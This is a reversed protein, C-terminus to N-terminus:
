DTLWKGPVKAADPKTKLGGLPIRDSLIEALKTRALRKMSAVRDQQTAQLNKKEAPDTPLHILVPGRDSGKMEKVPDVYLKWDGVRIAQLTGWGHFYLLSNRAHSNSHQTWTPWVDVGDLRTASQKNTEFQLSCARALTPFLDIAGTLHHDIRGPPIKGPFRVICPVRNGGELTSWKLGRFPSARSWKRQGPETGNDSTFVVITNQDLDNKKLAKLIEGIRSDLEEVVDGYAGLDSKGKWDPHSEAPFHPATFPLYLFFPTKRNTEIFRIAEATFKETLLRNQFPNEILKANRYLKSTQNNSKTIYYASDFGQDNPLMSQKDGLHWKGSIGTKYGDSRFLEAITFAEPALGQDSPIKYGMVGGSWGYRIPYAGTMLAMRSPTCITCGAYFNTLRIGQQALQDLEPTRLRKSGYCSLDAYGLDDAMILIVNPRAPQDVEAPETSKQVASVVRPDKALCLNAFGSAMLILVGLLYRKMM